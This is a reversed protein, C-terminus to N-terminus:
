TKRHQEINLPTAALFEHERERVVLVPCRAHRVVRETTSGMFTHTLGTRGHTSIVILDVDLEEAANVIENYPQGSRTLARSDIHADITLQMEEINRKAAARAQELIATIDALVFDTVPIESQMVHLLIVESNFQKAMAKAYQLAKISCNSFDVPVLIKKLKFPSAPSPIQAETSTLEIDVGGGKDSPRIKM